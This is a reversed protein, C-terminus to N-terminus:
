VKDKLQNISDRLVACGEYNEEDLLVLVSAELNAIAEPHNPFGSIDLWAPTGHSKIIHVAEEAKRAEDMEYKLRLRLDISM